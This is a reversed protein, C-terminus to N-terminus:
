AQWHWKNIKEGPCKVELALDFTPAVGDYSARMFPVPTGEAILPVMISGTEKEYCARAIPELQRGRAIALNDPTPPILRRKQLYLAYPTSLRSVGM